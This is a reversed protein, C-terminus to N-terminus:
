KLMVQGGTVPVAQGTEYKQEIVYYIAKMLDEIRTGRKMPVKDEYFKRVDNVDKAGPVKGARLYQVFLGNEPDSWLPSDLFNGPCISNVKIGDEVLELAFSQTLGIGGFKSGAYAGNKNSGQLGSKSNIQIIDSLYDPNVKYQIAMVPAANQTCVFYGKYNVATVFEFDKVPQTKVSGAKLVGANSIFVDLGGYMRVIQHIVEAVSDGDTIDVQFAIAKGIGFDSCLKEANENVGQENIDLLAAYGGEAVIHKAIEAGVGRAAGTIAVVKGGVRGAPSSSGKLARLRYAEVEWNELFQYQQPTLYNVGGLLKAGIMLNIVDNYIDKVLQVRSFNNGAYFIGLGKAIIVAPQYKRQTEYEKLQSRLYSIMADEDDNTIEIWMPFSKAYVIHDPYLPGALAASKGDSSCAIKLADEGDDFNVIALADSNEALLARLAPAIINILKKAQQADIQEIEGFPEAPLEAPLLSKIKKIVKDTKERIEDPTDGSVILGHNQIIIAQPTKGDTKAAYESVAKYLTQALEVGPDTFDVWLVDDGFLKECLEKGKVSCSLMNAQQNHTHVVFQQPLLHHMISEVSPRIADPKARAALIMNKYEAERETKDPPFKHKLIEDLKKRDLEVFGNEDINGLEIGSAKVFLKDGIKVSTNGGGGIVFKKDSGYYRSLKIVVDLSSDDKNFTPWNM